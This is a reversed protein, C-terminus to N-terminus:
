LDSKVLDRIPHKFATGTYPLHWLESFFDRFLQISRRGHHLVRQALGRGRSEVKDCACLPKCSQPQMVARSAAWSALAAPDPDDMAVGVTFGTAFVDGAGNTDVVHDVRLAPILRERVEIQHAHSSNHLIHEQKAGSRQGPPSIAEIAKAGKEGMTVVLSRSLEVVQKLSEYPWSATEIDSLFVWVNPRLGALLQPAPQPLSQVHNGAVLARQYGQALLSIHQQKNLFRDM